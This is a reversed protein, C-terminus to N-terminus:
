LDKCELKHKPWDEVQHEKSCYYVSKCASCLQLSGAHENCLECRRELIMSKILVRHNHSLKPRAKLAEKEKAIVENMHRQLLARTSPTDSAQLTDCREQLRVTLCHDNPLHKKALMLGEIAYNLAADCDAM